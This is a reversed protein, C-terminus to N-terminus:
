LKACKRITTFASHLRIALCLQGLLDLLVSLSPPMQGSTSAAMDQNMSDLWIRLHILCVEMLEWKQSEIRVLLFTKLHGSQYLSLLLLFVVVVVLLLLV